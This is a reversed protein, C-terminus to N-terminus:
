IPLDYTPNDYEPTSKKIRQLHFSILYKYVYHDKAKKAEMHARSTVDRASPLAGKHRGEM